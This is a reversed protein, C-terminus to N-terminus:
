LDQPDKLSYAGLSITDSDDYRSNMSEMPSLMTLDISSALRKGRLARPTELNNASNEKVFPSFVQSVAKKLRRPTKSFSFARSVRKGFRVAKSLTNYGLESTNLHLEEGRVMAILIEYDTRCIMNALTKSVTTIFNLKASPEEGDLMFAYLKEKMELSNKCILGFAGQCEESEVINLVRKVCPLSIMEIHKYGKQPTKHAAAPSKANLVRTRRKCVEISDSFLFMSLPVGRGCLSETLEIVDIRTVFSRHSSLLTAPCNDIDNMIDFMVVQGETKRKDENINTMVEKLVNIAKELKTHDRNSKNTHKMIDNLLLMISPLRQVPRIILEALTQRGCEPKTLCVKLFAHFRQNTKDCKIIREKTDEFFNVFPPYAKVLEESNRTIVDGVPHDDKWHDVMDVLEDRIKCHVDYIPPIKGFILKVDQAALIPGNYQDQKEIQAKFTNLITFLINVYNKETQLFEKVVQFRPSVKVESPDKVDSKDPTNSADLFSNPSLTNALESSCRKSYNPSDLEGDSALQALNDKFRKRKRSRTGSMGSCPSFIKALPEEAKKLPYIDEAACAAMQVSAWFWEARIVHKPLCLDSPLEKMSQDEVVLHSCNPDGPAAIMGGNQETLEEMHDQEERPFGIFSLCCQYFTPVRYQMQESDARVDTNNREGWVNEVWAIGMIPIGVGVAFNYKYGGTCNAVLHTVNCKIDKRVSGSMHHVLDVLHSLAERDKFGTFCVILGAMSFCYQPRASNPIPEHNKACTIIVPPGVLRAGAKYLKRYVDGQFQSLVFVTDYESAGHIHELGTASEFVEADFSKVAEKLEDNYICEDGVLIIRMEKDDDENVTELAGSDAM